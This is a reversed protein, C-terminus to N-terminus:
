TIFKNFNLYICPLFDVQEVNVYQIELNIIIFFIMGMMNQFIKIIHWYWKNLIFSTDLFFSFIKPISFNCVVQKYLPTFSTSTLPRPASSQACLGHRAASFTVRVGAHGGRGKREQQARKRATALVSYVM